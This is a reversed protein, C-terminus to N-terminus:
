LSLSASSFALLQDPLPPCIPRGTTGGCQDGSKIRCNACVNKWKVEGGEDKTKEGERVSWRIKNWIYEFEKRHTDYKCMVNLDTSEHEGSSFNCINILQVFLRILYSLSLHWQALSQIFERKDRSHYDMGSKHQTCFYTETQLQLCQIGKCMLLSLIVAFM